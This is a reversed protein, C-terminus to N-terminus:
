DEYVFIKNVTGKLGFENNVVNMVYKYPDMKKEVERRKSLITKFMRHSMQYELPKTNRIM